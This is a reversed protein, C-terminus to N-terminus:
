IEFCNCLLVLVCTGEVLLFITLAIMLTIETRTASLLTVPPYHDVSRVTIRKQNGAVLEFYRINWGIMMTFLLREIGICRKQYARFSTCADVIAIFTKANSGIIGKKDRYHGM